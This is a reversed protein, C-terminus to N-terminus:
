IAKAIAFLNWRLFDALAFLNIQLPLVPIGLSTNVGIPCLARQTTTLYRM